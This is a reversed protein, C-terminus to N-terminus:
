PAVGAAGILDCYTMLFLKKAEHPPLCRINSHALEEAKCSAMLVACEQELMAKDAAQVSPPLPVTLGFKRAIVQLLRDEAEAFSPLILKLPTPLDGLYAEAADHLLGELRYDGPCLASVLVSHEAVSYFERCHGGFRCTQALAHAIDRIELEDPSVDFPDLNRGTFTTILNRKM